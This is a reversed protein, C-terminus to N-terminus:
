NRFLGIIMVVLSLFSLIMTIIVGHKTLYNENNSIRITGCPLFKAQIISFIGLVILFLVWGLLMPKNINAKPLVTILTTSSTLCLWWVIWLPRKNFWNYWTKCSGLHTYVTEVVCANWAESDSSAVVSFLNSLGGGQSICVRKGKQSISFSFDTIAYPFGKYQEAEEPLILNYFKQSYTLESQSM